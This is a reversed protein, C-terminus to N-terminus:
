PCPVNVTLTLLIGFIPLLIIWCYVYSRFVVGKIGIKGMIGINGIRNYSKRRFIERRKQKILTM